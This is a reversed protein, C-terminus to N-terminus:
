GTGTPFAFDLTCDTETSGWPLPYGGSGTIGTLDGTGSGDVITWTADVGQATFAGTTQLVVSGEHGGITGHLQEYGTFRGTGGADYYLIFGQTSTEVEIDGTFRM